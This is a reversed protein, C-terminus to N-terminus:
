RKGRGFGWRPSRSIRPGSDDKKRDNADGPLAERDGIRRFFHPPNQFGDIL